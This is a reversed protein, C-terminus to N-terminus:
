DNHKKLIEKNLQRIEEGSFSLTQPVCEKLEAAAITVSCHSFSEEIIQGEKKPTKKIFLKWYIYNFWKM